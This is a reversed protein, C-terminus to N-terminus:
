CAPSVVSPAGHTSGSSVEWNQAEHARYQTHHHIHFLLMSLEGDELHKCFTLFTLCVCGSARLAWCPMHGASCRPRNEPDGHIHMRMGKLNWTRRERQETHVRHSYGKWSTWLSIWGRKGVYMTKRKWSKFGQTEEQNRKELPRRMKTKLDLLQKYGRAQMGNKEREDGNKVEHRSAEFAEEGAQRMRGKEKTPWRPWDEQFLLYTWNSEVEECLSWKPDYWFWRYFCWTPHNSNGPFGDQPFGKIINPSTIM